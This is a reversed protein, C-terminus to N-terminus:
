QVEKGEKTLRTVKIDGKEAWVALTLHQFNCNLPRVGLSGRVLCLVRLGIFDNEGRTEEERGTKERLM